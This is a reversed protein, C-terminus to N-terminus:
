GAQKLADEVAKSFGVLYAGGTDFVPRKILTPNALMLAAANDATLGDRDAEPLKRWTTGRRNLLTEWGIASVWASLTTEDLGDARFDHYRHEIGEADLWKRAKRCTDCNKIGYVTIM